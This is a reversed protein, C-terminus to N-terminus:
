GGLPKAFRPGEPKWGLKVAYRVIESTKHEPAFVLEEAGMMEAVVEAAVLWRRVPWRSRVRPAVALHILAALPRSPNPAEYWWVVTKGMRFWFGLEIEGETVPRPFGWIMVDQAAVLREPIDDLERM